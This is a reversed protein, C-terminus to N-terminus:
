TKKLHFVNVKKTKTFFGLCNQRFVVADIEVQEHERFDTEKGGIFEYNDKIILIPKLKASRIVFTMGASAPNMELNLIHNVIIRQVEDTNFQQMKVFNQDLWFFISDSNNM